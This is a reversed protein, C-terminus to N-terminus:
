SNQNAFSCKYMVLGITIGASNIYLYVSGYFQQTVIHGGNQITLEVGAASSVGSKCPQKGTITRDHNGGVVTSGHVGFFFWLFPGTFCM